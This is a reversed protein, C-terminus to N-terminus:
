LSSWKSTNFIDVPPERCLLSTDGMLEQLGKHNLLAARVDAATCVNMLPQPNESLKMGKFPLLADFIAQEVVKVTLEELIDNIWSWVWKSGSYGFQCEQYRLRNGYDSEVTVDIMLDGRETYREIFLKVQPRM